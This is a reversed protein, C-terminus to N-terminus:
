AIISLRPRKVPNPSQVAEEDELGWCQRGLEMVPPLNLDFGRFVGSTAASGKGVASGITGDFHRRKHGGLAQGTAFTKWCILCQHGKAGDSSSSAAPQSGSFLRNDGIPKRHSTMHGGLAQYSAFAKACLSCKHDLTPPPTHSFAPSAHRALSLLCLALYEEESQSGRSQSGRFGEMPLQSHPSTQQAEIAM